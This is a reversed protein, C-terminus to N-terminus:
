FFYDCFTVMAMTESGTTSCYPVSGGGTISREHMMIRVWRGNIILGKCIDMKNCALSIFGACYPEVFRNDERIFKPVKPFMVDFKIM